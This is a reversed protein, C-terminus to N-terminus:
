DRCEDAWLKPQFEKCWGAEILADINRKDRSVNRDLKDEWYALNSKPRSKYPCEPDSHQHWFCGHVFIAKRRKRVVIDPKGPLDKAHLRYRFGRSHLVRRVILEPATDKSSIRRMLESRQDKTFTDM